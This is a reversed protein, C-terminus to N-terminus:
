YTTTDEYKYVKGNVISDYVGQGPVIPQDPAIRNQLNALLGGIVNYGCGGGVGGGVPLADGSNRLITIGDAGIGILNSVVVNFNARNDWLLIGNAKGACVVNNKIINAYGGAECSIGNQCNGIAKTGTIDTGVYNGEILNGYADTMMAIGRDANDSVVNRYEPLNIGIVNRTCGNDLRIGFFNGGPSIGDSDVGINNGVIINDCAFPYGTVIGGTKIIVNGEGISAKGKKRNGGIINNSSSVRIALGKFNRIKLGKM